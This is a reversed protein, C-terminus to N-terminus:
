YYLCHFLNLERFKNRVIIIILKYRFIFFCILQFFKLTFNHNLNINKVNEVVGIM